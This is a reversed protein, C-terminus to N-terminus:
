RMRYATICGRVSAGVGGHLQIMKVYLTTQASISVRFTPVAGSVKGGLLFQNMILTNCGQERTIWVGIADLYSLGIELSTLGAPIVGTAFTLSCQWDGAPLILGWPETIVGSAGSPVLGSQFNEKYEGYYGATADAGDTIGLLEIGDSSMLILDKDPGTKSTLKLDDVGTAQLSFGEPDSFGKFDIRAVGASEAVYEQSTVNTQVKIDSANLIGVDTVGSVDLSDAELSTVTTAGVVNLTDNSTITDATLSALTSVGSVEFTTVALDGVAMVEVQLNDAELDRYKGVNATVTNVNPNLQLQKTKSDSLKNLSM